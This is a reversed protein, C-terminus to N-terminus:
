YMRVNKEYVENDEQASSPDVIQPDFGDMFCVILAREGSTIDCGKHYLEGPHVLVQGQELKVTKRLARIYTGGGEYGTSKSLMCNWTIDCGDYHMEVGTHPPQDEFKQYLLLHPEKWSRPHLKLAEKKNNHIEGVVAIINAMIHDTVRSTLGKVESCPLDRKTYTYLTRWTAANSGSEHVDKVHKDAMHRILDCTESTLLDVVFVKLQEDIITVKHGNILRVSPPPSADRDRCDSRNLAGFRSLSASDSPSSAQHAARQKKNTARQHEQRRQGETGHRTNNRGRRNLKIPTVGQKMSGPTNINNQETSKHYNAGVSAVNLEPVREDGQIITNQFLPPVISCSQDVIDAVVNQDAASHFDTCSRNSHSLNGALSDHTSLKGPINGHNSYTITKPKTDNSQQDLAFKQAWRIQQPNQSGVDICGSHNYELASAMPLNQQNSDILGDLSTHDTPRTNGAFFFPRRFPTKFPLWLTSFSASPIQNDMTLNMNSDSASASAEQIPIKLSASEMLESDRGKDARFNSIATDISSHKLNRCKSLGEKSVHDKLEQYHRGEGEGEGKCELFSDKQHKDADQSHYLKSMRNSKRGLKFKRVRHTRLNNRRKSLIIVRDSDRDDELNAYESNKRVSLPNAVSSISQKTLLPRRQTNGM